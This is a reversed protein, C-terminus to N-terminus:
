LTQKSQNNNKNMIVVAMDDFGARNGLQVTTQRLKVRSSSSSNGPQGVILRLQM